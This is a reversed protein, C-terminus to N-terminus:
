VGIGLAYAWPQTGLALFVLAAGLLEVNKVFNTMESQQQDEPVAWFDHMTPTVVLFFAVLLGAAVTPYVGLAIGLGGVVLLAGSALVGLKPAPVGKAEAYGAMANSNLFHNVGQYALLGGFLVRGVLLVIAAVGGDVAM